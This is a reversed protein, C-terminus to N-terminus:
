SNEGRLLSWGVKLVLELNVVVVWDKEHVTIEGYPM